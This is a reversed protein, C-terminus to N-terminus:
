AIRTFEEFAPRPLRDFITAPDGYGLTSIFNSKVTTGAFFAADVADNDFGSMPGTDLGLARAAFIFYAGQLSSNRMATVQVLPANPAGDADMFWSRADSVPFLRPAHDYFAMDMGIIATVPATRIKAANTGSALGALKEKAEQSVCWVIRAPFLNASTPGFKMLDWIQRLQDEGVPKDLYGNYSRAERFLLDRGQESLPEAM